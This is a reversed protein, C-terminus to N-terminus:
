WVYIVTHKQCSARSVLLGNQLFNYRALEFMECKNIIIKNNNYKKLNLFSSNKTYM